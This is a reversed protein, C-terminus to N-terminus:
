FFFSIGLTFARYETSRTDAVFATYLTYDARAVFRDNIHYRLGIGANGLRANVPVADVLSTNPINNFQGLGIGFYPSLRQDSWPEVTLNLHFFDTGSFIGQAQGVTAEVAMADSFRWATWVKLLPETKFRGFAAGMEVRRRLYDDLLVDRFTKQGGAETLTTELQQRAVWGVQGGAARVRYWDTHRLEITIWEHRAAVFFVPYGRGPGTHLEVFPDAVQLREGAPEEAFAPRAVILALCLALATFLRHTTM